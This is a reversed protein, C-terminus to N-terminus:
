ILGMVGFSELLMMSRTELDIGVAKEGWLREEWGAVFEEVTRKDEFFQMNKIQEIRKIAVM